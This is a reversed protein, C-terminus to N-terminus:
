YSLRLSRLVRLAFLLHGVLCLTWIVDFLTQVSARLASTPILTRWGTVLTLRREAERREGGREVTAGARTPTVIAQVRLSEGQASRLAGPFTMQPRRLGFEAARSRWRLLLDDGRQELGILAYGTGTAVSALHTPGTTTGGSLLTVELSFVGQAAEALFPAMSDVPGDPVPRGLFRVSRITGRFPETDEFHHAWQGWWIGQRPAAPALLVGCALWALVPLLLVAAVYGTSAPGPARRAALFARYLLAGALAGATNALIDVPSGRRGPILTAQLLEIATSMALALLAVRGLPTPQSALALGLPLFLALNVLLDSWELWLSVRSPASGLPILTALAILLLPALLAFRPSLRRM